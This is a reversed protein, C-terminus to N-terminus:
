LEGDGVDDDDDDDGVNLQRVLFEKHEGNNKEYQNDQKVDDDDQQLLGSSIRVPPAKIHRGGTLGRVRSFFSPQANQSNTTWSTPDDKSTCEM